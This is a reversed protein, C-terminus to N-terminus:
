RAPIHSLSGSKDFFGISAGTASLIVFILTSFVSTYAMCCFYASSATPCTFIPVTAASM